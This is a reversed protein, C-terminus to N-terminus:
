NTLPLETFNFSGCSTGRALLSSSFGLKQNVLDFYLFNNEMQYTMIVIGNKVGSGGDIFALCSVGNGVDTFGYLLFLGEGLFSVGVTSSTTALCLAFKDTVDPNKFQKPFAMASWSFAVVGFVDKPFSTYINSPACSIVMETGFPFNAGFTPNRGDTSYVTVLETTLQSLKCVKLIPNYPNVACIGCGYKAVFSLPPCTPDVDYSRAEICLPDDHLVRLDSYAASHQIDSPT